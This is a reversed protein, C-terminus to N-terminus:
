RDRSFPCDTWLVRVADTMTYCHCRPRLFRADRRYQKQYIRGVGRHETSRCKMFQQGSCSGATCSFLSFKARLFSDNKKLFKPLLHCESTLHGTFITVLGRMTFPLCFRSVLKSTRYSTEMSRSEFLNFATQGSNSEPPVDSLFGRTVLAVCM